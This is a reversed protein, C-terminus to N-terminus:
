IVGKTLTKTIINWQKVGGNPISKIITGMMMMRMRMM